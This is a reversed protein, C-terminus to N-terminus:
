LMGTCSACYQRHSNRKRAAPQSQRSGLPPLRVTIIPKIKGEGLLTFLLPLDQMFPKKNFIYLGTIGYFEVKKSHPRLNNILLKLLGVLMMRLGTPTRVDSAQRRKACQWAASSTQAAWATLSSILAM